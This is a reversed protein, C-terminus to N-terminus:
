WGCFAVVRGDLDTRLHLTVSYFGDLTVGGEEGPVPVPASAPFGDPNARPRCKIVTKLPTVEGPQYTVRQGQQLTTEPPDIFLVAAGVGILLAVLVGLALVRM